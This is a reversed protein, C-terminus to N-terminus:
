KAVPEAVFALLLHGGTVTATLRSIKGIGASSFDALTTWTVPLPKSQEALPRVDEILGERDDHLTTGDVKAGNGILLRGRPVSPDWTFDETSGLAVLPISPRQARELLLQEAVWPTGGAKSVYTLLNVGPQILLTRGINTDVVEATGTTTDAIQLTSPDGRGAGLVFLALHTADIWVHYGVPKVSELIVRPNSGDLDFRWLRQTKDMETRVASFTKGDPTVLPSNENEPSRTLNTLAKTAIDYRYIDYQTGERVSSFLIAKGDPTFSPQNDYGPSNSINVLTGDFKPSAAPGLDALYVEPNSAPQQPVVALTVLAGFVLNRLV